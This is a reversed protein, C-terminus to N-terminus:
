PIAQVTGCLATVEPSSEVTPKTQTLALLKKVQWPKAEVIEGRPLSGLQIPGFAVRKVRSLPMQLHGFVKRLERNKGEKLTVHYWQNTPESESATTKGKPATESATSNRRERHGRSPLPRPVTSAPRIAISGYQMGDVRIGKLLRDVLEKRLGLQQHSGAKDPFSAMAGAVHMRVLYERPVGGSPHELAAACGGNNTFMLLGESNLDLRGIPILHPPLDLRALKKGRLLAGTSQRGSADKNATLVGRPKHYLWIRTRRDERTPRFRHGDVTVTANEAVRQFPETVMAGDIKVIGRSIWSEAQRRSCLGLQAMYKTVRM